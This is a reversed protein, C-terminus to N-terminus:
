FSPVRAPKLASAFAALMASEEAVECATRKWARSTAEAVIASLSRNHEASVTENADATAITANM